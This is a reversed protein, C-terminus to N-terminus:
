LVESGMLDGWARLLFRQRQSMDLRMWADRYGFQKVGVRIQRHIDHPQEKRRAPHEGIEGRRQEHTM